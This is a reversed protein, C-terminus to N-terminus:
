GPFSLPELAHLLRDRFARLEALSVPSLLGDPLRELPVQTLAWLVNSSSGM